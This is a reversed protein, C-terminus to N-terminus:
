GKNDMKYIKFGWKKRETEEKVGMDSVGTSISHLEAYLCLKRERKHTSIGMNKIM